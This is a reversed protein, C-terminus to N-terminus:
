VYGDSSRYGRQLPLAGRGANNYGRGVDTEYPALGYGIISQANALTAEDTALIPVDFAVAQGGPTTLDLRVLLGLLSAGTIPLGAAILAAMLQAPTM